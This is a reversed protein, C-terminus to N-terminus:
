YGLGRRTERSKAVPSDDKWTSGKAAASASNHQQTQYYQSPQAERRSCPGFAAAPSGHLHFGHGSSYLSSSSIHGAWLQTEYSSCQPYEQHHTYISFIHASIQSFYSEDWTINIVRM